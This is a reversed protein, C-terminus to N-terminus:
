WSAYPSGDLALATSSSHVDFVDAGPMPKDPPSAYSRLQWTLEAPLKPDAFPDRPIQRLFYLRQVSAPAGTADVGLALVSLSPPYGSDAPGGAIRGREVQRKYGDIADRIEWLAHRLEREKQATLMAEGLPMIAAALIGLIGMVVLLEILTFGEARTKMPQSRSALANM